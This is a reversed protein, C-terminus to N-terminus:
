SKIWKMIEESSDFFRTEFNLEGINRSITNNIDDIYALSMLSMPTLIAMKKVGSKELAPIFHNYYFSIERPQNNFYTFQSLDIIVTNPNYKDAFELIMQHMKAIIEDGTEMEPLNSKVLLLNYELTHYIFIFDSDFIQNEPITLSQITTIVM